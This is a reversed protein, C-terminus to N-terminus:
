ISTMVYFSVVGKSVRKYQFQACLLTEYASKLFTALYVDNLTNYKYTLRRIINLDTKCLVKDIGTREFGETIQNRYSFTSQRFTQFVSYNHSRIIIILSEELVTMKLHGYFEIKTLSIM